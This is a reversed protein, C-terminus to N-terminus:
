GGFPNEGAYQIYLFGDSDKQKEYLSNLMASIPPISRNVYLFISEEAPLKLRKRIVYIFQGVTLDSPVLYKKKDIEKINSKITKECIIPIRDPYKQLIRFSEQKRQDATFQSKFRMIPTSSNSNMNISIIISVFCHFLSIIFPM